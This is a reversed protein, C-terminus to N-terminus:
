PPLKSVTDPNEFAAVLFTALVLIQAKEVGPMIGSAMKDAHFSFHAELALVFRPNCEM